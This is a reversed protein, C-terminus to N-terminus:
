HVLTLNTPAPLLCSRPPHHCLSLWATFPLLEHWCGMITNTHQLLVATLSGPEPTYAARQMGSSSQPSSVGCKWRVVLGCRTEAGHSVAGDVLDTISASAENPSDTLSMQVHFYYTKSLSVVLSSMFSVRPGTWCTWLM